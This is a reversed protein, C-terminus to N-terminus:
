WLTERTVLRRGHHHNRNRDHDHHSRSRRRRGLFRLFEMECALRRARVVGISSVIFGLNKLTAALPRAKIM